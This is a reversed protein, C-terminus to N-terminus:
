GFLKFKFLGAFAAIGVVAATERILKHLWKDYVAIYGLFDGTVDYALYYRNPKEILQNIDRAYLCNTQGNSTSLTCLRAMVSFRKSPSDYIQISGTGHRREGISGLIAVSDVVHKVEERYTYIFIM